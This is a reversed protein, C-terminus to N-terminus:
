ILSFFILFSCIYTRFPFILNSTYKYLFQPYFRGFIEFEALNMSTAGSCTTGIKYFKFFSYLKTSTITRTRILGNGCQDKGYEVEDIIDYSLGDVSAQLQWHLPNHYGDIRNQVGYGVIQFKHPKLNVLFYGNQTDSTHCYTSIARDLCNDFYGNTYLPQVDTSYFSKDGKLSTFFGDITNEKYPFWRKM